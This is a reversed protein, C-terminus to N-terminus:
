EGEGAIAKEKGKKKSPVPCRSLIKRTANDLCKRYKSLPQGAAVPEAAAWWISGGEKLCRGAASLALDVSLCRFGPCRLCFWGEEALGLVLSRTVELFTLNFIVKKPLIGM